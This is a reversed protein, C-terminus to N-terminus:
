RCTPIEFDGGVGSTLRETHLFVICRAFVEACYREWSIYLRGGDWFACGLLDKM